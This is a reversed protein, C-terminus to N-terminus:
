VYILYPGFYIQYLHKKKFDFDFRGFFNRKKKAEFNICNSKKGIPGCVLGAMNPYLAGFNTMSRPESKERSFRPVLSIASKREAKIGIHDGIGYLAFKLM